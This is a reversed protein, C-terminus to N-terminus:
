RGGCGRSYVVRWVGGKGKSGAGGNGETMCRDFACNMKHRIRGDKFDGQRV